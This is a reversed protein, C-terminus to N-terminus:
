RRPTRANVWMVRMQMCSVRRRQTRCMYMCKRLNMCKCPQPLNSFSPHNWIINALCMWLMTWFANCIYAHESLLNNWTEKKAHAWAFANKAQHVVAPAKSVHSTDVCPMCVLKTKKHVPLHIQVDSRPLHKENWMECSTERLVRRCAWWPDVRFCQNRNGGYDHTCRVCEETEQRAFECKRQIRQRWRGERLACALDLKLPKSRNTHMNMM